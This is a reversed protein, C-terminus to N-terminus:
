ERALSLVSECTKPDLRFGLLDLQDMVPAVAALQGNHKARLLVGLTGTFSIRLLRAYHRARADDLIALADRANLALALVEREGPGLGRASDIEHAEKAAKVQMWSLTDVDPLDLGQRRGQELEHAVAPPITIQGYLVPLLNLLGVQHLYQLPSTDSIVEPM